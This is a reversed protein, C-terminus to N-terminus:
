KFVFIIRLTESRAFKGEFKNKNKSMTQKYNKGWRHDWRKLEDSYYEADKEAIYNNAFM